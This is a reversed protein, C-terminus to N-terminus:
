YLKMEKIIKKFSLPPKYPRDCRSCPEPNPLKKNVLMKRLLKMKRNNWINKLSENKVNGLIYKGEYNTCCAVVDGNWLISIMYYPWFCGYYKNKDIKLNLAGSFNTLERTHFDKIEPDEEGEIKQVILKPKKRNAILKQFHIVKEYATKDHYSISLIDLGAEVIEQAKEKTLFYSNTVIMSKIKRKRLESIMQGIKPHLLPEGSHHLYVKKIFGSSDDLIKKFLKLDMNGRERKM